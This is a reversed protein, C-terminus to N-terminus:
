MPSWCCFEWESYCGLGPCGNPFVYGVDEICTPVEPDCATASDPTWMLGAFAIAAGAALARVVTAIRDRRSM